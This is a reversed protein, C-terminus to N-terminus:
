TRAEVHDKLGELITRWNAEAHDRASETDNNDQVVAVSTGSETPTLEIVVTHYNEPLDPEGTLPSYHSFSLRREPDYALIEGKDEYVRGEWEGRWTIPSGVSWASDVQAGLMYQQVREPNVLADWVEDPPCEIDITARAVHGVPDM